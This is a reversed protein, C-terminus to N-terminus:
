TGTGTLHAIATGGPSATVNLDATKVGTTGPKFQVAVTCTAHAAIPATCTNTGTISYGGSSNKISSAPLGTASDGINSVTFSFSTGVLTAHSGYDHSTPSIALTPPVPSVAPTTGPTTPWTGTPPTVKKCKKKASSAGKKAKKCKKKAATAPGSGHGTATATLAVSGIALSAALLLGVGKTHTM